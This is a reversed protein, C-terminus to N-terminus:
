SKILSSGRMLLSEAGGTVNKASYFIWIGTATPLSTPYVNFDSLATADITLTNLTSNRLYLRGGSYVVPDKMAAIITADNPFYVTYPGTGTFRVAGKLIESASLTTNGNHTSMPSHFMHGGGFECVPMSSTRAGFVCVSPHSTRAGDGILITKAEGSTCSLTCNNGIVTCKGSSTHVSVSNGIICNMTTPAMGVLTGLVTNASGSTSVSTSQGLMVNSDIVRVYDGVSFSATTM